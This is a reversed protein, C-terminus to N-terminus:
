VRAGRPFDWIGFGFGQAAGGRAVPRAAGWDLIWFRFDLIRVHECAVDAVLDVADPVGESGAADGVGVFDDLL